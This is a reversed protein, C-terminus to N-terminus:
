SSPQLVQLLPGSIPSESVAHEQQATQAEGLWQAQFAISGTDTASNQSGQSGCGVLLFSSFSIALFLVFAQRM